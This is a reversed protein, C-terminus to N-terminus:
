FGSGWRTRLQMCPLDETKHVADEAITAEVIEAITTTAPSVPLRRRWGITHMVPSFTFKRIRLGLTVPITRDQQRM